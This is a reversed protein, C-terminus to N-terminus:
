RTRKDLVSKGESVKIPLPIYKEFGHVRNQHEIYGTLYDPMFLPSKFACYNKYRREFEKQLFILERESQRCLFVWGGMDNIVTHTLSDNFMVSEYQGVHRIARVVKNWAALSKLESDGELSRIWEAPSPFSKKAYDPNKLFSWLAQEFLAFSYPRLCHWYTQLLLESVKRNYVEALIMIGKTFEVRETSNM